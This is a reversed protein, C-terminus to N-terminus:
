KLLRKFERIKTDEDIVVMEVNAIDAFNDLMEQTVAQSYTSHHAAGAYIWAEGSVALNPLPKWLARAVPLYPMDEPPTVTELHNSVFRFHDGLDILSLNIARGAKGTFVLRAVDCKCGITHLHIELRPRAAAISPCVELMHAGLVQDEASFHYTYDEMFSTGGPLGKTMVKVIRTMAATKWDGEGGFGYGKDMLRQTALGPLNTLGVLDEFNNTFAKCGKEELFRELGLELRAEQQLIQRSAPTTLLEEAVEYQQCYEEILKEVDEDSVANVVKALAGVSYANVEFGFKIQASVKNGETVAVQRMNDGFRAVRLNQAENWGIAARGWQDLAYHVTPNKWHGVIVKRNIGLRTCIFGFERDGHASQNTNMFNMDISNWPLAANFQTHLHVFPKNLSQLGKIWMKAPSFTHMWLIIGVCNKDNNAALCLDYIETPSKATGKYVIPMSIQQSQNFNAVIEQSDKDVTALVEEGYLTQSGTIFWLQQQYIKQM